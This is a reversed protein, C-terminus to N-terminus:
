KWIIEYESTEEDVLITLLAPDGFYVFEWGAYEDEEPDTIYWIKLECDNQNQRRYETGAANEAIELAEEVSLIGPDPELEFSKKKLLWPNRSLYHEYYTLLEIQKYIPEITVSRIEEEVVGEQDTTSFKHYKIIAMHFGDNVSKCPERFFMESLRYDQLSEQLVNDFFGSVIEQYQAQSWLYPDGADSYDTSDEM